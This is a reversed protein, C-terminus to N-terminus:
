RQFLGSPGLGSHHVDHHHLFAMFVYLLLLFSAEEYPIEACVKLRKQVM